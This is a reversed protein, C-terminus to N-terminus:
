RGFVDIKYGGKRALALREQLFEEADFDIGQQIKADLKARFIKEKKKRRAHMEKRRVFRMRKRFKKLRHKNMKRRRIKLINKAQIAKPNEIIWENLSSDPDKKSITASPFPLYIDFDKAPTVPCDYFSVPLIGPNHIAGPLPSVLQLHPGSVTLKDGSIYPPLPSLLSQHRQISCYTHQSRSVDYLKMHGPLCKRHECKSIGSVVLSRFAQCLRSLGPSMNTSLNESASVTTKM